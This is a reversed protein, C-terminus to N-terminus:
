KSTSPKKLLAINAIRAFHSDLVHECLNPTQEEKLTIGVNHKIHQM